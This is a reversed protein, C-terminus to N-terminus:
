KVEELQGNAAIGPKLFPLPDTGVVLSGADGVHAPPSMPVFMGSSDDFVGIHFLVYDVPHRGITTSRDNALDSFSRIASGHSVAFFPAHYIGAKRDFISYGNLNM